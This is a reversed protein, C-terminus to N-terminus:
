LTTQILHLWAQTMTEHYGSAPTDQVQNAANHARHQWQGFPFTRTEFRQFFGADTM